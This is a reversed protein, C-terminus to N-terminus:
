TLLVGHLAISQSVDVSVLCLIATMLEKYSSNRSTMADRAARLAEKRHYCSVQYFHDAQHSTLSRLNVAASALVSHYISVRAASAQGKGNVSLLAVSGEFALRLYINKFPNSQHSIPQMLSVMHHAYHHFLLAVASNGFPFVPLNQPLYLGSNSSETLLAVSTHELSSLGSFNSLMTRTPVVSSTSDTEPVLCLNAKSVPSRQGNDEEAIEQIRGTEHNSTQANSDSIPLIGLGGSLSLSPQSVFSAFAHKHSALHDHCAVDPTPTSAPPDSVSALM